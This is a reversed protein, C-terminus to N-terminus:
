CLSGVLATIEGAHRREDAALQRFLGSIDEDPVKSAADDYAATGRREAIYRNRLAELLSAPVNPRVHKPVFSDGTLLFYTGQLRKLHSSEDRSLSVFRRQANRSATRNALASYFAADAAEDAIFAELMSKVDCAQRDNTVRQWVAEFDM